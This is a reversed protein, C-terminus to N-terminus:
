AADPATGGADFIHRGSDPEPIVNTKPHTYRERMMVALCETGKAQAIEAVRLPHLLESVREGYHQVPHAPM